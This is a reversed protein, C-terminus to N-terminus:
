GTGDNMGEAIKNVLYANEANFSTTALDVTVDKPEANIDYLPKGYMEEILVLGEMRAVSCTHHAGGPKASECAVCMANHVNYSKCMMCCKCLNYNPCRLTLHTSYLQGRRYPPSDM